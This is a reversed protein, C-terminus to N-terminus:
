FSLKRRSFFHRPPDKGDQFETVFVHDDVDDEPIGLFAVRKEQGTGYFNEDYCFHRDEQEEPPAFGTPLGLGDALFEDLGDVM